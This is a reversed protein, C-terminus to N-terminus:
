TGWYHMLMEVQSNGVVVVVKLDRIRWLKLHSVVHELQSKMSIQAREWRSLGVRVTTRGRVCKELDLSGVIADHSLIRDLRETKKLVRSAVRMPNAM